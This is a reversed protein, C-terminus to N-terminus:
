KGRRCVDNMILISKNSNPRVSYDRETSLHHGAPSHNRETSPSRSSCGPIPSREHETSQSRELETSQSRDHETSQSRDHETSQSRDSVQMVVIVM